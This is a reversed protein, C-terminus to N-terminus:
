GIPSDVSYPAYEKSLQNARLTEKNSTATRVPFNLLYFTTDRALCTAFTTFFRQM